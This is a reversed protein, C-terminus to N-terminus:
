GGSDLVEREFAVVAAIESESLVGDFAPMQGRGQIVVEVQSAPDPYRESVGVFSPGVIGEGSPGHCSACRLDYIAAGTEIPDDDIEGAPSSVREADSGGGFGAGYVVLGVLVVVMFSCLAALGGLFAGEKM